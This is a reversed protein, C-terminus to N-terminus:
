AKCIKNQALYHYAMHQLMKKEKNGMDFLKELHFSVRELWSEQDAEIEQELPTLKVKRGKEMQRNERLTKLEM